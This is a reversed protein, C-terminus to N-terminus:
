IVDSRAGPRVPGRDQGGRLHRLHRQGPVQVRRAGPHCLPDAPMVCHTIAHSCQNKTHPPALLSSRASWAFRMSQSGQRQQQWRTGATGGAASAAERCLAHRGGAKSLGLCGDVRRAARGRVNKSKRIAVRSVGPVPKMGLKQMAKRSKKESRSQKGRAGGEDDAPPPPQTSPRPTLPHRSLLVPAFARSCRAVAAPPMARQAVPSGPISAAIIM